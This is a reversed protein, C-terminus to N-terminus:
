DATHIFGDKHYYTNPIKPTNIRIDPPLEDHSWLYETMNFAEECEVVTFYELWDLYPETADFKPDDAQKLCEGYIFKVEEDSFLTDAEDYVAYDEDSGAFFDFQQEGDKEYVQLVFSDTEYDDSLELNETLIFGYQTYKKTYAVYEFRSIQKPTTLEELTFAVGELRDLLEAFDSAMIDAEMQKLDQETQDEDPYHYWFDALWKKAEPVTMYDYLEKDQMDYWLYYTQSPDAQLNRILEYEQMDLADQLDAIKQNPLDLVFNNIESASYTGAEELRKAHNECVLQVIHAPLQSLYIVKM